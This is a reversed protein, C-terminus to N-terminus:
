GGRRPPRRPAAACPSILPPGDPVPGRRRPRALRGGRPHRRATRDAPKPHSQEFAMFVGEPSLPEVRHIEELRTFIQLTLVAGGETWHYRAGRRTGATLLNNVGAIDAMSENPQNIVPVVQTALRGVDIAAGLLSPPREGNACGTHGLHHHGLM